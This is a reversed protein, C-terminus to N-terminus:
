ANGAVLRFVNPGNYYSLSTKVERTNAQGTPDRFGEALTRRGNVARQATIVRRDAGPLPPDLYTKPPPPTLM